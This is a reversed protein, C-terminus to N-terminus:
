PQVGRLEQRDIKTIAQEAELKQKRATRSNPNSSLETEAEELQKQWYDKLLASQDKRMDKQDAQLAKLAELLAEDREQAKREVQAVDGATAWPIPDIDLAKLVGLTSLIAAASAGITVILPRDRAAQMTRGLMGNGTGNTM